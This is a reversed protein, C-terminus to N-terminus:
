KLEIGRISHDNEVPLVIDAATPLHEITHRTIREFHQIFRKLEDDGMLKLAAGSFVSARLKKEQLRRWSFVSEFDPAKLMICIDAYQFVKQRYEILKDNVFQRWVGGADENKELENIAQKLEDASQPPSNNCWGEFLIIDVPKDIALWKDKSCQDDVAKDFKPVVCSRRNNLDDLVNELMPVNHTGPVGRTRLLPHIKEALEKREERRLYFDDLSLEAVNTKNESEIILKLFSTMTSKGTGQAGNLSVLLPQTQQKDMIMKALPCYIDVVTRYFDAPLVKDRILKLCTEKTQQSIM